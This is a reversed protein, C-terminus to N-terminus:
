DKVVKNIYEPLPNENIYKELYWCTLKMKLNSEVVYDFAFKALQKAIGRGRMSEPVFTHQLDLTKDNMYEYSIYGKDNCGEITMEFMHNKSDHKILFSDSKVSSMKCVFISNHRNFQILGRLM